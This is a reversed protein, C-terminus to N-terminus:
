HRGIASLNQYLAEWETALSTTCVPKVARNYWYEANWQDGEVRHLYAHVWAAEATVMGQVLEHAKNWDGAQEAELAEIYINKTEM